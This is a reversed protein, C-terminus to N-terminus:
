DLVKIYGQKLMHPVDTKPICCKAGAKVGYCDKIYEVYANENEDKYSKVILALEEKEETLKSIAALQKKSVEKEKVLEAALEEKEKKLKTLEKNEETGQVAKNELKTNDAM